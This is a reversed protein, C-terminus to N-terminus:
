FTPPGTYEDIGEPYEKKSQALKYAGLEELHRADDSPFPLQDVGHKEAIEREIVEHIKSVQGKKLERMSDTRYMANQVTLWVHDHFAEPTWPIDYGPKLFKRQDLGAENLQDAKLRMYKWAAKRQQSTYTGKPEESGDDLGEKDLRAILALILKKHEWGYPHDAIQQLATRLQDTTM